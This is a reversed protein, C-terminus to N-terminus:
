LGSMKRGFRQVMLMQMERSTEVAPSWRPPTPLYSQSAELDAAITAKADALFKELEADGKCQREMECRWREKSFCVQKSNRAARALAAVDRAKFAAIYESVAERLRNKTVPKKPELYSPKPAM